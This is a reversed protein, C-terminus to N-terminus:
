KNNNEDNVNDNYNKNINENSTTNTVNFDSPSYFYSHVVSWFCICISIMIIVIGVIFFKVMTMMDKRVARSEDVLQRLSEKIEEEM